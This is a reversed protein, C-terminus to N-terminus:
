LNFDKVKKRKKYEENFDLLTQCIENFNNDEKYIFDNYSISSFLYEDDISFLLKLDEKMLIRDNTGANHIWEILNDIYDDRNIIEYDFLELSFIDDDIEVGNISHDGLIYEKETSENFINYTKIKKM